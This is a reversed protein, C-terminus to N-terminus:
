GNLSGRRYGQLDVTFRSFGAQRLIELIQPRNVPLLAFDKEQLEIRAEAGFVRVRHGLFGLKRLGQEATRVRDLLVATIPTHYPIRSALCADAPANWNSLGYEHSLARIDDKDMDAELFPHVLGLEDAARAGPRYDSLDYKNFGDALTNFGHIRAAQRIASMLMKKCHYCRDPYNAVVEPSDLPNLELRLLPIDPEGVADVAFPTVAHILLVNTRGLARVAAAGLLTSDVGGSYAIAIRGYRRLVDALKTSSSNTNM